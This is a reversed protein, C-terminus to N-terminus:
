TRSVLSHRAIVAVEDVGASVAGSGVGGSSVGGDDGDAFRATLMSGSGSEGGDRDVEGGTSTDGCGSPLILM